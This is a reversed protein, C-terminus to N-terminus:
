INMFAGIMINPAALPNEAYMAGGIALTFGLGNNLQYNIEPTLSLFSVRNGYISTSPLIGKGNGNKLSILHQIKIAILWHEEPTWGFEAGWTANDDYEVEEALEKTLRRLPTLDAM